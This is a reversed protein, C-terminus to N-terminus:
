TLASVSVRHVHLAFQLHVCQCVQHLRSNGWTRVLNRLLAFSGVTTWQASAQMGYRSEPECHVAMKHVICTCLTCRTCHTVRDFNHCSVDLSVHHMVDTDFVTLIAVEQQSMELYCSTSMLVCWSHWWHVWFMLVVAPVRRTGDSYVLFLLESWQKVILICRSRSSVNTGTATLERRWWHLRNLQSCDLLHDFRHQRHSARALLRGIM